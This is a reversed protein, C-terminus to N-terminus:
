SSEKFIYIGLREGSEILSLRLQAQSKQQVKFNGCIVVINNEQLNQKWSPVPQGPYFSTDVFWLDQSHYHQDFTAYWHTEGRGCEFYAFDREGLHRQLLEFVAKM